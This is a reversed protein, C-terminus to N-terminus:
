VLSRAWTPRTRSATIWLLAQEAEQNCVVIVKLALAVAHKCEFGVPCSCYSHLNGDRDFWVKTVYSSIADAVQANALEMSFADDLPVATVFMDGEELTPSANSYLKTYHYLNRTGSGLEDARGM